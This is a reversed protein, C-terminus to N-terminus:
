RARIIDCINKVSNVYIVLEKSEIEQLKGDSGTIYSKEYDGELYSKIFREAADMM